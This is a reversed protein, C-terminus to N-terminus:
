LNSETFRHQSMRMTGRSNSRSRSNYFNVSDQDNFTVKKILRPRERIRKVLDEVKAVTQKQQNAIFDQDLYVLPDLRSVSLVPRHARIERETYTEVHSMSHHILPTPEVIHVNEINQNLTVNESGREVMKVKSEDTTQEVKLLLHHGPVPLRTSALFGLFSVILLIIYPIPTPLSAITPTLVAIGVAMTRTMLQVAAVNQPPVRLEMILLNINLWGGISVILLVTSLYTLM